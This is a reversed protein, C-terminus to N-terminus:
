VSGDASGRRAVDLARWLAISGKIGPVNVCSVAPTGMITAHLWGGPANMKVRNVV